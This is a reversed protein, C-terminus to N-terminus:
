WGAGIASELDPSLVVSGQWSVTLEKGLAAGPGRRLHAEVETGARRATLTYAAGEETRQERGRDDFYRTAATATVDAVRLSVPGASLTLSLRDSPPAGALKLAFRMPPACNKFTLKASGQWSGTTNFKVTTGRASGAVAAPQAPGGLAVEVKLPPEAPDSVLAKAPPRKPAPSTAPVLERLAAGSLVVPALVALVLRSTKM